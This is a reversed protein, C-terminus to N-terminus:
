RFDPRGASLIWLDASEIAEIGRDGRFLLRGSEDLGEFVGERRTGAYDIRVSAGPPSAHDLWAERISAFGAGARWEDLAEAFRARLRPFLADADVLAGRAKLTATPYGVGEPADLLNVGVGVVYAARSDALSVGEVLLGACKAGDEVLDNPWKLRASSAGLDRAARALAVGSVFGLQPALSPACPDIILASAYLNGKPSSWQRGRRGRGASQQEAVIWLRGPDGALARRRAEENTSDVEGLRM